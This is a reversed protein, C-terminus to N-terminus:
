ENEGTTFRALSTGLTTLSGDTIEGFASEDYVASAAEAVDILALLEDATVALVYRGDHRNNYDALRERLTTLNIAEPGSM